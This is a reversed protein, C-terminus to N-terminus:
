CNLLGLTFSLSQTNLGMEEILRNVMDLKDMQSYYGICHSSVLVLVMTLM